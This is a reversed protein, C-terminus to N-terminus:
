KSKVSPARYDGIDSRKSSLLEIGLEGNQLVKPGSKIDGDSPNVIKLNGNNALQLMALFSRCIEFDVQGTVVSDFSM